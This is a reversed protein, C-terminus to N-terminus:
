SNGEELQADEIRWRAEMAAGCPRCYGHSTGGEAGDSSVVRHLSECELCAYVIEGRRRAVREVSGIGHMARHLTYATPTWQTDSM